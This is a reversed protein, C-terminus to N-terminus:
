DGPKEAEGHFRKKTMPKEDSEPPETELNDTIVVYQIEPRQATEESTRDETIDAEARVEDAKKEVIEEVAEPQLRNRDSALRTGDSHVIM